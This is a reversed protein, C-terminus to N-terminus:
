AWATSSALAAPASPGRAMPATMFITFGLTAPCASPPRTAAATFFSSAPQAAPRGVEPDGGPGPRPSAVAGQRRGCDGAYAATGQSRRLERGVDCNGASASPGKGLSPATPTM